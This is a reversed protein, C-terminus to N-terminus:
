RRSRRALSRVAHGLKFWLGQALLSSNSTDRDAKAIAVALAYDAAALDSRGLAENTAARGSLAVSNRADVCLAENWDALADDHRGITALCQARAIRWRARNPEYEILSDYDLLATHYHGRSHASHADEKTSLYQWVERIPMPTDIWREAVTAFIAERESIALSAKGSLEVPIARPDFEDLHVQVLSGSRDCDRAREVLKPIALAAASWIVVCCRAARISPWDLSPNGDLDGIRIGVYGRVGLDEHLSIAQIDDQHGHLLVIFKM